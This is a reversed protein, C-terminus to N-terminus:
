RSMQRWEEITLVMCDDNYLKDNIKRASPVQGVKQFGISEYLARATISTSLVELEIQEVMGFANNLVITLFRRVLGTGRAVPRVYIGWLHGRHREKVGSSIRFGAIAVLQGTPDFAGHVINQPDILRDRQFDLSRAAEESVDTGFAEPHNTLAELRINRMQVVDKGSLVRISFPTKRNFIFPDGTMSPESEKALQHVIVDHEFGWDVNPISTRVDRCSAIM